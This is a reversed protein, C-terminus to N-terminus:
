NPQVGTSQTLAIAVPLYSQYDSAAQAPTNGIPDAGMEQLRRLMEPQRVVVAVERGIREVIADPTKAPAMLSTPAMFTYVDDRFGQEAFTPVDPLATARSTGPVALARLRGSEIYPKLTSISASTMQIMGSILDSVMPSEGKYAAHLVKVGYKREMFAQIQHPQTGAGWSGMAYDGPAKRVLEILEAFTRAPVSSHVAMVTRQGAVDSVMRLDTRPDYPLKKYLVLNAAIPGPVTLLLTYGDAASKVVYDTGIIGGAGSRNEVIVPQGLRKSLGDGLTRALIDSSGGAAFQVIIRVPRSPYSGQARAAAPALAFVPALAPALGALHLLCSRRSLGTNGTTSGAACSGAPLGQMAGDNRGGAAPAQTHHTKM